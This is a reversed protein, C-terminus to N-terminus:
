ELKSYEIKARRYIPLDPDADKWLDLFEEYSKKASTKDGSVAQARALQLRALAGTVFRGVVGPHDIVKQFEPVALAGKGMQLYALGRLYAPYVSNVTDPLSLEYKATPRLNEIAGEPANEQLKIAAHIM